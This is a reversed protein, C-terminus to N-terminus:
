AAPPQAWKENYWWTPSIEAHAGTPTLERRRFNSFLKITLL